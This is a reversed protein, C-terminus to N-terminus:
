TLLQSSHLLLQCLTRHDLLLCNHANHANNLAHEYTTHHPTCIAESRDAVRSSSPPARRLPDSMLMAATSEDIISSRSSTATRGRRTQRVCRESSSSSAWRASRRARSPSSLSKGSVKLIGKMSFTICFSLTSSASSPQNRQLVDCM